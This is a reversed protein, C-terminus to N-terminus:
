GMLHLSQSLLRGQTASLHLAGDSVCAPSLWSGAATAGQWRPASAGPLYHPSCVGEKGELAATSPSHYAVANFFFEPGPVLTGVGLTDNGGGQIQM